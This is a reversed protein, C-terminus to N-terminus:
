SRPSFVKYKSEPVYAKSYPLGALDLSDLLKALDALTAETAVKEEAIDSLIVHNIKGLAGLATGLVGNIEYEYFKGIKPHRIELVFVGLKKNREGFFFKTVKAKEENSWTAIANGNMGTVAFM